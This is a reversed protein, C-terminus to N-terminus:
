LQGSIRFGFSRQPRIDGPRGMYEVNGINKVSLSVTFKTNIKYGLNMDALFYAKNHNNWYDFFGPLITERTTPSLFVDDINLLKSKFFMDIGAQFKRYDASLSLKGSHKRRYKLYIGTSQSTYPNVETPNIFVYGGSLNANLNGFNRNLLFELESGYVRSDEVNGARFGYNYIGTIPDPYFGFLYEILDSNRSYFLAVDAQGNIKGMKIGQKVGIESSWGSEALISPNPFITVSGLSTSAYKEAISPYRYGQGFSARLFTYSAIRYNLGSRFVPVIKDNIEDLSNYEFRVGSIFKLRPFPFVDLQLLGSLNLGNHNGYFESIIRSVNESVGFNIKFIESLKYWGQYESYLNLANSNNSPNSPIKNGTSQLRMRLDHSFRDTKSLSIFPDIALFSGKFDQATSVDQKLAGYNADEWLLFDNKATLGSALNVGYALGEYKVSHKKLSLSLRGLKEDNLKRYGNDYLLGASIGVDTNGVKQLHSFSASSFIRPSSWWIWRKERPNDFFGTELYFKTSPNLGADATRFNIIGNLASSGYMVSAAGKIIEVQSINELPLFQWKINGADAAIVPLGNILTLVRSGAGYSFGSGGRISAQGDLVEIGSTKNILDEADTIQGRSLIDPRIVSLSVTSESLKQESRNASVVIQDIENIEPMLGVDVVLTDSPNLFVSRSESKYGIYTFSININGAPLRYLYEGKANSITGQTRSFIVNAGVLPQGTNLDTVAGRVIGTTDAAYAASSLFLLFCIWASRM